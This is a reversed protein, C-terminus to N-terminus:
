DIYDSGTNMSTSNIRINVNCRTSSCNWYISCHCHGRIVLTVEGLVCSPRWVVTSWIACTTTAWNSGNRAHPRVSNRCIKHSSMEPTWLVSYSTGCISLLTTIQRSKFSISWQYLGMSARSNWPKLTHPFNKNRVSSSVFVGVLKAILDFYTVSKVLWATDLRASRLSRVLVIMRWPSRRPCIASTRSLKSVILLSYKSKLHLIFVFVWKSHSRQCQDESPWNFKSSVRGLPRTPQLTGVSRTFILTLHCM